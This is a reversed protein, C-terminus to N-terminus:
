CCGNRGRKISTRELRCKDFIWALVVASLLLFLFHLVFFGLVFSNLYYNLVWYRVHLLLTVLLSTLVLNCEFRISCSTLYWRFIVYFLFSGLLLKDIYYITPVSWQIKSVQVLGDLFTALMVVTVVWLVQVWDIVYRECCKDKRPGTACTGVGCGTDFNYANTGCCGDCNRRGCNCPTGWNSNCWGVFKFIRGCYNFAWLSLYIFIWGLILVVWPASNYHAATLDTMTGTAFQVSFSQHVLYPFLAFFVGVVLVFVWFTACLVRRCGNNCCRDCDCGNNNWGDDCCDDFGSGCCTGGGSGGTRCTGCRSGSRGSGSGGGSRGSRGGCRGLKGHQEEEGDEQESFSSAKKGKGHGHREFDDETEDSSEDGHHRNNHKEDEGSDDDDSAFENQIFKKDQASLGRKRETAM